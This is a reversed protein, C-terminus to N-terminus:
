GEEEDVDWDIDTFEIKIDYGYGNVCFGYKNSLLDNLKEGIAEYAYKDIPAYKDIDDLNLTVNTPLSENEEKFTEDFIMLKDLAQQYTEHLSMYITRGDKLLHLEYDNYSTHVIKAKRGHVDTFSICEKNKM